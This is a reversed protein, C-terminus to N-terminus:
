VNQFVRKVKNKVIYYLSLLAFIILNWLSFYFSIDLSPLKEDQKDKHELFHVSRANQVIYSIMIQTSVFLSTSRLLTFPQTEADLISCRSIIVDSKSILYEIPKIVAIIFKILKFFAKVGRRKIKEESLILAFINLNIKVTLEDKKSVKVNIKQTLTFLLACIIPLFRLLIM